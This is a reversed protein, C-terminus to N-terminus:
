KKRTISCSTALSTMKPAARSGDYQAREPAAGRQWSSSTSHWAAWCPAVARQCCGSRQACRYQDVALGRFAVTHSSDAAAAEDDGAPGAARGGRAM